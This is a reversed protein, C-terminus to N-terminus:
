AHASSCIAGVLDAQSRSSAASSGARGEGGVERTAGPVAAVRGVGPGGLMRGAGAAGAAPWGAGGGDDPVAACPNEDPGATLEDGVGAGARRTTPSGGGEGAEGPM